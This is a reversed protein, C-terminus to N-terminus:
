VSLDVSRRVPRWCYNSPVIVTRAGDYAASGRSLVQTTNLLKCGSGQRHLIPACGHLIPSLSVIIVSLSCVLLWFKEDFLSFSKPITQRSWGEIFPFFCPFHM